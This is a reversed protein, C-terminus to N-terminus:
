ADANVAQRQALGRLAGLPFRHKRGDLPLSLFCGADVLHEGTLHDWVAVQVGDIVGTVELHIYDDHERGVARPEPLADAWASLAAATHSTTALQLRVTTTGGHPHEVQVSAVPPLEALPLALLGVGAKAMASSIRTIREDM